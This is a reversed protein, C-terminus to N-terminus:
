LESRKQERRKSTHVHFFAEANECYLPTDENYKNIGEENHKAGHLKNGQYGCKPNVCQNNFATNGEPTNDLWWLKKEDLVPVKHLSNKKDINQGKEARLVPLGSIM